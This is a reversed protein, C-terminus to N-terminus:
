DINATKNKKSVEPNELQELRSELEAVVKEFVSKWKKPNEHYTEITHEFTERKVLHENLVSDIFAQKQEDKLYEDQAIVDCYIQVFTKENITQRQESKNTCFLFLPIFFILQIKFYLKIPPTKYVM